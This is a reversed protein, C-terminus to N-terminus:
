RKRRRGPLREGVIAAIPPEHATGEDPEPLQLDKRSVM